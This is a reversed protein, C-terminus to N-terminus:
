RVVYHEVKPISVLVQQNKKFNKTFQERFSWPLIWLVEATETELESFVKLDTGLAYKGIKLPNIDIIGKLQLSSIGYYQLLINGKTSAGYAYIRNGDELLGNLYGLMMNKNYEVRAFFKLYDEFSYEKEKFAISGDKLHRVFVRYSGGNIENTEVKFIELGNKEFLHVLNKYSYYCIHEHCINSIDNNEIMPKLTMLQFIGIGDPRLLDKINRVFLNPNRSAYLVAIGTIVKAYNNNFKLDEFYHMFTINAFRSLDSNLNGAPDIGVKRIGDPLFSLYTGDNAGVDVFVDGDKAGSIEMAQQAIEKLDNKIVESISSKYWYDNYLLEPNTQHELQLLNCHRCNVLNLPVKIGDDIKPSFGNLAINGLSYIEELDKFGCLRCEEIKEFIM